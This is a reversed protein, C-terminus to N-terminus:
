LIISFSRFSNFVLNQLSSDSRCMELFTFSLSVLLSTNRSCFHWALSCYELLSHKSIDPMEASTPFLSVTFFTSSTKSTISTGTLVSKTSSQWWIGEYLSRRLIYKLSLRRPYQQVFFILVVSVQTRLSAHQHLFKCWRSNIDMSCFSISLICFITPHWALKTM